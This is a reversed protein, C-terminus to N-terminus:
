APRPPRFLMLAVLLVLVGVAWWMPDGTFYFSIGGVLASAEGAVWSYFGLMWRRAPPADDGILVRIVGLSVLAVCTVIPPVFRFGEPPPPITRGQAHLLYAVGGLMLVGGLLAVRIMLTVQPPPVAPRYAPGTM